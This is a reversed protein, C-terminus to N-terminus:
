AERSRVRAELAALDEPTNVNLFPAADALPLRLTTRTELWGHVSRQGAALYPEISALAERRVLLFLVQDRIGDHPVVADVVARGERLRAALKAVLDDALAPADGPCVFLLAGRCIRAAAAIGALPGQGPLDDAVVPVGLAGYRDLHRNASVIVEDVQPILRDLVHAVLPRGALELLPKDAGGFRSGGGGCLVVGSIM